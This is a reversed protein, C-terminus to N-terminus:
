KKCTACQVGLIKDFFGIKKFGKSYKPWGTKLETYCAECIEKGKAHKFKEPLEVIEVEVKERDVAEDSGVVIGMAEESDTSVTKFRKGAEKAIKMYRSTVEMSVKQNVIIFAADKDKLSRVVYDEAEEKYTQELTLGLIVRERFEGLWKRKEDPKIQPVGGLAYEVARELESRDTM